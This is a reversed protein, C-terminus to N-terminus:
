ALGRAAVYARVAAAGAGEGADEYCEALDDLFGADDAYIPRLELVRKMHALAGEADDTFTACVAM